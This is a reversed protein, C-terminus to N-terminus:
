ELVCLFPTLEFGKWTITDIIGSTQDKNSTNPRVSRFTRDQTCGRRRRKRTQEHVKSSFQTESLFHGAAGRPKERDSSNLILCSATAESCRGARGHVHDVNPSMFGSLGVFLLRKKKSSAPQERRLGAERGGRADM